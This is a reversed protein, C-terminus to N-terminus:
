LGPRGSGVTIEKCGEALETTDNKQRQQLSDPDRRRHPTHSQPKLQTLRAGTYHYHM